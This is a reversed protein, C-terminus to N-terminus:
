LIDHCGYHRPSYRGRQLRYQAFDILAFFVVDKVNADDSAMLINFHPPVRHELRLGTPQDALLMLLGLGLIGMGWRYTIRVPPARMIPATLQWLAVFGLVVVQQLLWRRGWFFISTAVAAAFLIWFLFAELNRRRM